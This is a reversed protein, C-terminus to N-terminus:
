QVEMVDSIVGDEMVLITRGEARTFRKYVESSAFWVKRAVSGQRVKGARYYRM